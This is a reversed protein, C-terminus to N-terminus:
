ARRPSLAGRAPRSRAPRKRRVPSPSREMVVYALLCGAYCVVGVWYTVSIGWSLSVATALVTAVVSTAGNVGWFWPLLGRDGKEVIRMGFPFAMGMCFGLPALMAVAVLIRVLTEQSRFASTLPVTALGFVLLIALLTGLLRRPQAIRTTALSGVGAFLLLSFLVVALGYVPHGLFVVLRQMQSIEVFLFGLGIAAFYGMPTGSGRLSVHRRTALLPAGILLVSLVSVAILVFALVFVANVNQTVPNVDDGYLKAYRDKRFADTFRVQHFFFPRDDTPPTLDFPLTALDERDITGAVLAQIVPEQAGRPSWLVEFGRKGCTALFRDVEADSYPSKSVMVNVVRGGRAVLLHREPRTAGLEERVVEMAMTFMRHGEVRYGPTWWRSTTLVGDDSLADLFGAWAEKTYLANESLVYAGAATAAWTDILSIQILDFQEDAQAIYSRAEANVFNVRSDEDLRGSFDAYRDTLLDLILKNLEIGTVKDADFRLATLVDRGGGVGIVAVSEPKRVHYSANVVDDELFALPGTDGDFELIATGAEADINLYYQKFVPHEAAKEGYGWGFPTEEMERVVAIRSYSNWGEYIPRELQSNKAWRVSLHPQGQSELMVQASFGALALALFAVAPGRVSRAAWAFACAAIGLLVAVGLIASIVGVWRLVLVVLAAGLAAGVLDAAYLRGVSRVGRTLILSIAVGSLLFPIAFASFHLILQFLFGASKEIHIPASLHFVLALVASIGSLIALWSLRNYARSSDFFGPALFVVMAGTTLGLMTLSIGAFAFHYYLTVSFVRTILIQYALTTLALLFIGVYAHRGVVFGPEEPVSRSGLASGEAM